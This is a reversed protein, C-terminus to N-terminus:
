VRATQYYRQVHQTLQYGGAAGEQPQAVPSQAPESPADVRKAVVLLAAAMAGVGAAGALLKRRATPAALAASPAAAVAVSQSAASSAASASARSHERAEVSASTTASACAFAAPNM